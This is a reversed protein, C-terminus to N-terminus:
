TWAILSSKMILPGGLNLVAEVTLFKKYEHFITSEFAKMLNYSRGMPDSWLTPGWKPITADYPDFNRDTFCGGLDPKVELTWYIGINFEWFYQQNASMEVQIEFTESSTALFPIYHALDM